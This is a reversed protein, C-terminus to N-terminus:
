IFLLRVRDGFVLVAVLVAFIAAVLVAGASVIKVIRALPHYDGTYLDVVRELATNFLEAVIVMFVATLVFLWETKEIKLYLSAAIALAAVIFHVRMNREHRLAYLLGQVADRMSRMFNKRNMESDNGGDRIVFYKLPPL